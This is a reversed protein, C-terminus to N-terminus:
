IGVGKRHKISRLRKWEKAVAELAEPTEDREKRGVPRAVMANFPLPAAEPNHERHASTLLSAQQSSLCPLRGPVIYGALPCGMAAQTRLVHESFEPVDDVM